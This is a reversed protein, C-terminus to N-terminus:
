PCNVDTNDGIVFTVFTKMIFFQVESCSLISELIQKLHSLDIFINAHLYKM